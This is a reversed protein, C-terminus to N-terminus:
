EEVEERFQWAWEFDQKIEAETLQNQKINKYNEDTSYSIIIGKETRHLITHVSDNPNPIEVTYLEEKEIEYGFKHMMVLTETPKNELNGYWKYLKKNLNKRRFDIFLAYLSFEFDDKNDEYWDAVFQPVVPKEPDNLQEVLELAYTLGTEKGRQFDNLIFDPIANELEDIAEQKKM